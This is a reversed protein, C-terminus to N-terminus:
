RLAHFINVYGDTWPRRAALEPTMELRKFGLPALPAVQAEDTSLAFWVSAFAGREHGDTGQSYVGAAHVEVALRTLVPVLDLMRSSVHIVLLGHPRLKKLYLEMAEQSLLHLPVFDSSFADLMLLDFSQDPVVALSQRADGTVVKVEGHARSLFTFDKRALREVEPDLEFVTWREGDRAYSVLSGVGLGVLGVDHRELGTALLRGIPSDRHFYSLPEGPRTSDEVGHTTAGHRFFRLPGEEYVRYLGYFTRTADVSANSGARAAFFLLAGAALPAIGLPAARVKSKMAWGRLRAFDRAVFGLVLLAGAALYDDYGFPAGIAPLVLGVVASGLFGGLAQAFFYRGRQAPDAPRLRSVAAFVLLCGVLLFANHTLVAGLEYHTRARMMLMGWLATLLGGLSLLDQVRPHLPWPAFCLILTLLYVSLPLVWLLPVSADQALANTSAMLLANGAASLLLWAYFGEGEPSPARLAPAPEPSPGGPRATVPLLHLLVFVGYGAYWVLLQTKVDWAPEIVLPYSLLAILAGANSLGYLFVPDKAQELGSDHLWRQMVVSTTSLAVFPLGVAVALGAAVALAPPLALQPLHLPLALLPVAVVILQRWRWGAKQTVRAAFLYGLLLAGQFFVLSTSWVSASSGFRPLLLKAAILEIEFLLWSSLFVLARFAWTRLTTM